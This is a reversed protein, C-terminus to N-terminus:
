EDKNMNNDDVYERDDVKDDVYEMGGIKYDKDIM